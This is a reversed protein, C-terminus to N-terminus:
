IICCLTFWDFCDFRYDDAYWSFVHRRPRLTWKRNWSSPDTCPTFRTEGTKRGLSKLVMMYGSIPNGVMQGFGLRFMPVMFVKNFIWFARRMFQTM